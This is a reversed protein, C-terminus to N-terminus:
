TTHFTVGASCAGSIDTVLAIDLTITIPAIAAAEWLKRQQGRKKPNIAIISNDM